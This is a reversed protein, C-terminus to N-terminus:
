ARDGSRDKAASSGMGDGTLVNGRVFCRFDRFSSFRFMPTIEELTRGKTEPLCSAAFPVVIGSVVGFFLLTGGPGIPGAIMAPTIFASIVNAPGWNVGTCLGVAKGRVRLPMIESIYLWAGFGWSIGFSFMYGVICTIIVLGSTSSVKENGEADVSTESLLAVLGGSLMTLAMALMGYILLSRRGLRDVLFFGGITNGLWFMVAPMLASLLGSVGLSSFLTGGFSVMANIGTMIQFFQVFCGLIVVSRFYPNTFIEAWTASGAQREEELEARVLDLESKSAALDGSRLSTLVKVAEESRGVSELFRPTDSVFLLGVATVVGLFIQVSLSWRWGTPVDHDFYNLLSAIVIALCINNQYVGVLAGRISPPAVEAIYAPGASSTIGVGLGAILRGGILMLSSVASTQVVGGLAFLVSGLILAPRRGHRDIILHGALVASIAAGINFGNVTAGKEFAVSADDVEPWGMMIRFSPMEFVESVVGNDYGHFFGTNAIFICLLVVRWNVTEASGHATPEADTAKREADSGHAKNFETNVTEASGHATPEADTAKREASHGNTM